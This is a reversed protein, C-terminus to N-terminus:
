PAYGARPLVTDIPHKLEITTFDVARHRKSTPVVKADEVSANDELRARDARAAGLTGCLRMECRRRRSDRWPLVRPKSRPRSPADECLIRDASRGPSTLMAEASQRRDPARATAAGGAGGEGYRQNAARTADYRRPAIPPTPSGTALGRRQRRGVWHYKVAPKKEATLLQAVPM